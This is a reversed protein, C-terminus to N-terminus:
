NNFQRDYFIQVLKIEANATGHSKWLVVTVVDNVDLDDPSDDGEIVDLKTNADSAVTALNCYSMATDFATDDKNEYVGWQFRTDTSATATSVGLRISIDTADKFDHPICINWAVGYTTGNEAAAWVLSPGGDNTALGPQTSTDILVTETDNLAYATTVPLDITGEDNEVNLGASYTTDGDSRITFITANDSRDRYIQNGQYFYSDVNYMGSGQAIVDPIIHGAIVGICIATLFTILFVLKRKM